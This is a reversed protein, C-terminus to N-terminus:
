EFGKKIKSIIGFLQLIFFFGLVSGLISVWLIDVVNKCYYYLGFSFVFGIFVGVLNKMDIRLRSFMVLVFYGLGLIATSIATSVGAAYAGYKPIFLFNLVINVIASLLIIWNVKSVFGSANLYTGKIVFFANFIYSIMLLQFLRNMNFIELDSSNDFLFFLYQGDFFLFPAIMLMPISIILFGQNLLTSGGSKEGKAKAFKSFFIPMILWVFQMLADYCRYAAAYIGTEHKSYLREIMVMDIRENISYLLTVLTFPFAAKLTEQIEQQSFKLKVWGYLRTVLTFSIIVSFIVAILRTVVFLKLDLGKDLLMLVLVILVVREIVSMFGDTKFQQFAQFKARLFMLFYVFTQTLAIIGLLKLEELEYGLVWGVGVMFIPYVILIFIRVIFLSNFVTNYKSKDQAIEYTSYTNIGWDALVSFVLVLSFLSAYTGYAEHGIENQVLNEILFWIPKIM